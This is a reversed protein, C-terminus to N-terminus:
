GRSVANSIVTAIFEDLSIGAAKLAAPFGAEASIDPNANIELVYLRGQRDMRMDIRVYDRCGCATWTHRATDRICNAEVSSVDAPVRRPSVIGPITGPRWKIDYDVIRPRNSPFLTFDIEAIPMVRVRNGDQMVSINFERGDIFQEVLAPQGCIRHVRNVAKGLLSGSNRIVSKCDIGESGDASVPKVIYPPRGPGTVNGQGQVKQPFVTGAPVAIGASILRTKTLYKDFTLMLCETDSGTCARGLARCVAPVLNYDAPPGDLREVLNFVVPERGQALAAPIDSLRRIGHCRFPYKLRRLGASLASVEYLIGRDSEVHRDAGRVPLNYLVLVAPKKM